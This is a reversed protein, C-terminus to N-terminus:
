ASACLTCDLSGGDKKCREVESETLVILDSLKMGLANAATHAERLLLKRPDSVQAPKSPVLIARLTRYASKKDGFVLKAFDTQSMGQGDALRVAVRIFCREFDYGATM